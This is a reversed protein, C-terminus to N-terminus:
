VHCRGTTSRARSLVLIVWTVHEHFLGQAGGSAAHGLLGQGIAQVEEQQGHEGHGSALVLLVM